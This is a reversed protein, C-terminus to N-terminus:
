RITIGGSFPDFNRLAVVVVIAFIALGIGAVIGVKALTSLGGRGKVKEVDRYAMEITKGTKDQTIRFMSDDAQDIRGKLEAGNLLKVKVRTKKTSVRRAVESRIRAVKEPDSTQQQTFVVRSPPGSVLMFALLLIPVRNTMVAETQLPIVSRFRVGLGRVLQKRM